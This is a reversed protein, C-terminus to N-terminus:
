GRRPHCVAFSSSLLFTVFSRRPRPPPRPLFPIHFFQKGQCQYAQQRESQGSVGGRVGRRQEAAAVRVGVFAVQAAEGGRVAREVYEGAVREVRERRPLAGRRALHQRQFFFRQFRAHRPSVFGDGEYRQRLARRQEGGLDDALVKAVPFRKFGHFSDTEALQRRVAHALLNAFQVPVIEQAGAFAAFAQGLDAQGHNRAVSKAAAALLGARLDDGDGVQIAAIRFCVVDVFQRVPCRQFPQAGVLISGGEDEGNLPSLRLVGAGEVGEVRRFPRKFRQRGEGAGGGGAGGARGVVRGRVREVEGKGSFQLREGAEVRGLHM